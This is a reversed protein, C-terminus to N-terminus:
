LELGAPRGNEYRRDEGRGGYGARHAAHSAGRVRGHRKGSGVGKGPGWVTGRRDNARSVEKGALRRDRGMGLAEVSGMKDGGSRVELEKDMRSTAGKSEKGKIVVEMVKM